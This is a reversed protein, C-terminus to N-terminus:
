RDSPLHIQGDKDGLAGKAAPGVIPIVGLVKELTNEMTVRAVDDNYQQTKTYKQLNGEADFLSLLMEKMAEAVTEHALRQHNGLESGTPVAGWASSDIVEFDAGDIDAQSVSLIKVIQDITDQSVDIEDLLSAVQSVGQNTLSSGGGGSDAILM